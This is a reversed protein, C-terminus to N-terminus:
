KGLTEGVAPTLSVTAKWIKKDWDAYDTTLSLALQLSTTWRSQLTVHKEGRGRCAIMDAGCMGSIWGEGTQHEQQVPGCSGDAEAMVAM